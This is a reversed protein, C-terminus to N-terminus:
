ATGKGLGFLARGAALDGGLASHVAHLLPFEAPTLEPHATAFALADLGEPRHRLEGIGEELTKGAALMEGLVTRLEAPYPQNGLVTALTRELRVWQGRIPAAAFSFRHIADNSM